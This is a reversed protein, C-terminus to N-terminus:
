SAFRAHFFSCGKLCERYSGTKIDCMPVSAKSLPHGEAKAEKNKRLANAELKRALSMSAGRECLIRLYYSGGDRRVKTDGGM